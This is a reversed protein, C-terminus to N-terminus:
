NDKKRRKIKPLLIGVEKQYQKYDEGFRVVLDKEELYLTLPIYIILFVTTFIVLFWSNLAFALAIFMPMEGLTQPHRVYNYIGGYMENEESPTLTESGADKVGKLMIILGPIFIVLFIILGIWWLTTFIKWDVAPIPFWYWLILCAMFILEFVSAVIRYNRSQNWTKEGHKKSRTAPLLSISYFLTFLIMSSILMAFNIWTFVSM